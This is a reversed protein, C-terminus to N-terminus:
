SSAAISKTAWALAWMMKSLAANNAARRLRLKPQSKLPIRTGARNAISHNVGRFSTAVKTSATTTRYRVRPKKLRGFILCISKSPGRLITTTNASANRHFTASPKARVM